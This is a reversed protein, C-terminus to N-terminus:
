RPPEVTQTIQRSDIFRRLSDGQIVIKKGLRLGVLEGKKIQDKLWRDSMDLLLAVRNVHYYDGIPRKLASASM